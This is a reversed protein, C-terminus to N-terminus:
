RQNKGKEIERESQKDASAYRYDPQDSFFRHAWYLTVLLWIFSLEYRLGSNFSYSTNFTIFAEGDYLELESLYYKRFEPIRSIKNKM